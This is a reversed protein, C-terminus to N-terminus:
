SDAMVTGRRGLFFCHRLVLVACTAFDAVGGGVGFFFLLLLYRFFTQMKLSPQRRRSPRTIVNM